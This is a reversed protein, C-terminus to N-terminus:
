SVSVSPMLSQWYALAQLYTSRPGFRDAQINLNKALMLTVVDNVSVPLEGTPFAQEPNPSSVAPPAPHYRHLFDEVWNSAASGNVSAALMWILAVIVRQHRM